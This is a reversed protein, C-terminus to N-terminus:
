ALPKKGNQTSNGTQTHQPPQPKAQPKSAPASTDTASVSKQLPLQVTAQPKTASQVGGRQPDSARRGGPPSGAPQGKAIAERDSARRGTNVYDSARRGRLNGLPATLFVLGLGLTLGGGFSAAVIMLFGPGVPSNGPQPEDVRAIQSSSLAAAQSARVDALDKSAQALNETRQRVMALLNSYDARLSAVHTLRSEVDAHQQRLTKLLAASVKLENNLNSIVLDIEGNLQQRIQEEALTAAKVEPHDKSMRGLLQATRLQSDVLGEKLRRLAPQQEFLRQPAALLRNHDQRAETLLKVQETNADHALQTRRIEEQLHNSTGRLNSTGSTTETLARLEDIDSGVSKEIAELSATAKALDSEALSVTKELEAILSQAKAQRLSQLQIELQNCVANTLAVARERTPGQVSLYIVENRGFEGGKPPSVTIAEQLAEIDGRTPWDSPPESGDALGAELLAAKIMSPNQAMQVVTEQAAKMAESTDFRGQRSTAGGGAEDRVILAQSAQWKVPRVLGYGVGLVTLAITPVTWLLSHRRLTSALQAFSVISRTSPPM